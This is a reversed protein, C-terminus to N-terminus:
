SRQSLQSHRFSPPASAFTSRAGSPRGFFVVLKTPPKQLQFFFVSLRSGGVTTSALAEAGIGSTFRKRLFRNREAGASLDRETDGSGQFGHRDGGDDRDCAADFWGCWFPDRPFYPVARSLGVDSFL